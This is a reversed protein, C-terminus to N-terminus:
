GVTIGMRRYYATEGEQEMDFLMKKMQSIVFEKQNSFHIYMASLYLVAELAEPNRRLVTFFTKWYLSATKANFGVRACVRLLSRLNLLLHSFGPKHRYSIKLNLGNCLVREYYNSPDYIHEIVKLYSNIVSARRTKTLFNLGGSIFDCDKAVGEEMINSFLRGEAELRRTLQTNPLAFLLSVMAACIGSEQICSRMNASINPSDSDFGIIFGGMCVMGHSMIKRVAGTISKGANQKKNILALTNNEPTEIGLFVYRFDVDRMLQLLEDDEALNVSAETSFYFPYHRAESWIRVERLLGKVQEKNGIFNDDVFEVHGRFGLDYLNQLERIIQGNTKFRPVRGFMEIIDCFECNFPCGRIYQLGMMIYDKFRILDYRPTVAHRMDAKKDPPYVGKLAGNRLDELFFPITVEGEGLVLFDADRYIEPQSTPDAGGVVVTKGLNRARQILHLIANRQPLMGGTCVLDAWRLHEELLPEVNEDILRYNWHQPLLAAVTLLGLPAYAYKAGAISCIDRFNWFGHPSFATQVILCNNPNECPSNM